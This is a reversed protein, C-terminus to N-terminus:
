EPGDASDSVPPEWPLLIQPAPMTDPPAYLADAAARFIADAYPQYHGGGMPVRWDLVQVANPRPSPPLPALALRQSTVPAPQSGLVELLQREIRALLELELLNFVDKVRSHLSSLSTHLEGDCTMKVALACCGLFIPRVSHCHLLTPHLLAAREVQNTAHLTPRQTLRVPQPHHTRTTPTTATHTHVSWLM